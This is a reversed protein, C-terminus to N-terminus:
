FVLILQSHLIQKLFFFLLCECSWYRTTKKRLKLRVRYIIKFFKLFLFVKERKDSSPQIISSIKKHNFLQYYKSSCRPANIKLQHPKMSLILCHHHGEGSQSRPADIYGNVVDTIRKATSSLQDSEIIYVNPKFTTDELDEQTVLPMIGVAYVKVDKDKLGNSVQALPKRDSEKNTTDAAM